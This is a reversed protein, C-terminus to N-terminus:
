EQVVVCGADGEGGTCSNGTVDVNENNSGLIIDGATADSGPQRELTNGTIELTDVARVSVTPVHRGQANNIWSGLFLNGTISIQNHVTGSQLEQFTMPPPVSHDTWGDPVIATIWVDAVDSAIGYNVNDVTNGPGITVNASVSSELWYADDCKVFVAPGTTANFVNDFCRVNGVRFIAGRARNRLFANNHVAVSEPAVNAVTTVDYQQCDEPSPADLTVSLVQDGDDEERTDVLGRSGLM